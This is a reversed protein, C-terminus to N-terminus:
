IWYCGIEPICLMPPLGGLFSIGIQKNEYTFYLVDNEITQPLEDPMNVQYILTKSLDNNIFIINSIGRPSLMEGFDIIKFNTIIHYSKKHDLDM